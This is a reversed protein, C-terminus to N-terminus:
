RARVTDPTRTGPPATSRRFSPEPELELQQASGVFGDGCGAARDCACSLLQCRRRIRTRAEPRPFKQIPYACIVRAVVPRSSSKSQRPGEQGRAAQRAPFRTTPLELTGRTSCQKRCARQLVRRLTKRLLKVHIIHM